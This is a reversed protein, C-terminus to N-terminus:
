CFNGTKEKSILAMRAALKVANILSKPNAKGKGAIDYATGHDVSTRIIPLGLTINVADDFHLLKLPILGQDHYMCIVGDYDGKAAFYFLTDAPFPGSVDIGELSAKKIVPAILKREEEGFIGEEGAHPNLAAVALRPSKIGLFNTLFDNTLRIHSFLNKSALVKPVERFPLHTTVLVVRLRDGALMMAYEQTNTAEALLETHGPYNYGALAMASKNIPCTVLADIKKEFAFQIAKQIYSVMAKGTERNFSGFSFSNLDLNSIGFINIAKK